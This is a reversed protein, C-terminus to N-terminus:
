NVWKACARLVLARPDEAVDSSSQAQSRQDEQADNEIGTMQVSWNPDAEGVSGDNEEGLLESEGQDGEFQILGDGETSDVVSEPPSSAYESESAYPNLMQELQLRLNPRTNVALAWNESM